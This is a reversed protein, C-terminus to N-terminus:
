GELVAKVNWVQWRPVFAEGFEALGWADPVRFVQGDAAEVLGAKSDIVMFSEAKAGGKGKFTDGAQMQSVKLYKVKGGTSYSSKYPNIPFSAEYETLDPYDGELEPWTTDNLVLAKESSAFSQNHELPHENNPGPPTLYQVTTKADVADTKSTWQITVIGDPAGPIMRVTTGVPVSGLPMEYHTLEEEKSAASLSQIKPFTVVVLKGVRSQMVVTNQGDNAKQNYLVVGVDNNTSVVTGSPLSAGFGKFVKTNPKGVVKVITLDDELGGNNLMMKGDVLVAKLGLTAGLDSAPPVVEGTLTPGGAVTQFDVVDGIHAQKLSIIDGIDTENLMTSVQSAHYVESSSDGFAIEYDPGNYGTVVGKQTVGGAYVQVVTGRPVYNSVPTPPEWPLDTEAEAFKGIPGVIQVPTGHEIKFSADLKIPKDPDSLNVLTIATFGVDPQAADVQFTGLLGAQNNLFVAHGNKAKEIPLTDGKGLVNEGAGVLEAKSVLMTMSKDAPVPYPKGSILNITKVHKAGTWTAAVKYPTGSPSMFLDGTVFDTIPKADGETFKAADFGSLGGDKVQLPTAPILDAYEALIDVHSGTLPGTLALVTFDGNDAIGIVQKQNGGAEVYKQGVLMDAVVAQELPPPSASNPYSLNWVTTDGPSPIISGTFASNSISDPSVVGQTVPSWGGSTDSPDDLRLALDGQQKVFSTASLNGSPLKDSFVVAGVPADALSDATLDVIHHGEDAIAHGFPKETMPWAIIEAAQHGEFGLVYGNGLDDGSEQGLEKNNEWWSHDNAQDHTAKTWIKGDTAKLQAGVPASALLPATIIAWDGPHWFFGGAVAQEGEEDITEAHQIAWDAPDHGADAVTTSQQQTSHAPLGPEPVLPVLRRYSKGATGEGDTGDLAQWKLVFGDNATVKLPRVYKTGAGGQIWEGVAVEKGKTTSSEVVWDSPRFRLGDALVAQQELDFSVVKKPVGTATPKARVTGDKRVSTVVYELGDFGFHVGPTLHLGEVPAVYGEASELKVSKYGANITGKGGTEMSVVPVKQNQAPGSVEYISANVKFKDGVEFHSLFAEETGNVYAGPDFVDSDAEKVVVPKVNLDLLYYAKTGGGEFNYSEENYELLGKENKVIKYYRLKLETSDTPDPGLWYLTGQLGIMFDGPSFGSEKAIRAEPLGDKNWHKFPLDQSLMSADMKKGTEPLFDAFEQIASPASPAPAPPPESGNGIQIDAPEPPIPLTSKGAIADQIDRILQGGQPSATHKELWAQVSQVGGTLKETNSFAISRSDAAFQNRLAVEKEDDYHTPVAKGSYTSLTVHRIATPTALAVPGFFSKRYMYSQSLASFAPITGGVIKNKWWSLEHKDDKHFLAIDPSSTRNYLDWQVVAAHEALLFRAQEREQWQKNEGKATLELKGKVGDWISTLSLTFGTSMSYQNKYSAYVLTGVSDSYSKYSEALLKPAKQPDYSGFRGMLDAYNLQDLRGFTAWKEVTIGSNAPLAISVDHTGADVYPNVITVDSLTQGGKIAQPEAPTAEPLVLDGDEDTVAQVILTEVNEIKGDANELVVEEGFVHSIEWMKDGLMLLEGLKMFEGGKGFPAGKPWRPHLTEDFFAGENLKLVTNTM